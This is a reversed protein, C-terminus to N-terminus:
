PIETSALPSNRLRQVLNAIEETQAMGKLEADIKDLCDNLEHVQKKLEENELNTQNITSKLGSIENNLEDIQATLNSVKHINDNLEEHLRNTENTANDTVLKDAVNSVNEKFSGTALLIIFITLISAVCLITRTDIIKRLEKM